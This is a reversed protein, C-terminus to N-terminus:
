TRLTYRLEGACLLHRFGLPIVYRFYYSSPRLFLSQAM